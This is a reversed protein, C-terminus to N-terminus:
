ILRNSFPTKKPQTKKWGKLCITKKRGPNEERANEEQGEEEATPPNTQAVHLKSRACIM